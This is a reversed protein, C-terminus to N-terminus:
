DDSHECGGPFGIQYGLLFLIHLFAVSWVYILTVKYTVTAVTSEFPRFQTVFRFEQKQFVITHMYAHMDAASCRICANLYFLTAHTKPTTHFATM